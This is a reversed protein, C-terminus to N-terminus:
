QLKSAHEENLLRSLFPLASNFFRNTNCTFEKVIKKNTHRTKVIPDFKTFISTEKKYEKKAFKLCLKRRRDKLTNCKFYSCAEEYSIYKNQLILKFVKKQINELRDSDQDTLAGSWVPVAFEIVSRIEKQYIDNLIYDDFGLKKM